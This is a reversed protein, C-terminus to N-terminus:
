AMVSIPMDCFMAEKSHSIDSANFLPYMRARSGREGAFVVGVKYSSNTCFTKTGAKLPWAVVAYSRKEGKALSSRDKLSQNMGTSLRSRHFQTDCQEATHMM